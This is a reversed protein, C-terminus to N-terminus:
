NRGYMTKSSEPFLQADGTSRLYNILSATTGDIVNDSKLAKLADDSGSWVILKGGRLEYKVLCVSHASKAKWAEYGKKTSIDTPDLSALLNAYHSGNLESTFFQYTSSTIRKSAGDYSLGCYEM